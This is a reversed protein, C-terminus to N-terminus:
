PRGRRWPGLAAGPGVGAGDGTGRRGHPQGCTVLWLRTKGARRALAQVLALTSGLEQRHVATLETQGDLTADLGGLHLVGLGSGPPAAHGNGNQGAWAEDLLRTWQAADTLDLRYQAAGNSAAPLREFRTGPWAVVCRGGLASRGGGGGCRERRGGAALPRFKAVGRDAAAGRAM